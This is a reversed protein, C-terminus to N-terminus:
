PPLLTKLTAVVAYFTLGDVWRLKPSASLDSSKEVLAEM